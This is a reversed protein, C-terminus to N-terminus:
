ENASYEDAMILPLVQHCSRGRRKGTGKGVTEDYGNWKRFHYFKWLYPHLLRVTHFQKKYGEDYFSLTKWVLSLNLLYLVGHHKMSSKQSRLWPLRPLPLGNPVLKGRIASSGGRSTKSWDNPFDIECWNGGTNSKSNSNRTSLTWMWRVGSRGVKNDIWRGCYIWISLQHNDTKSYCSSYVNQDSLISDLRTVKPQVNEVANYMWWHVNMLTRCSNNHHNSKVTLITRRMIERPVSQSTIGYCVYCHLCPSLPLTVCYFCQLM